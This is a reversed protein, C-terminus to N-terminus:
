YGFLDAGTLGIMGGIPGLWHNMYWAIGIVITAAPFGGMIGHNKWMEPWVAFAMAGRIASGICTSVLQM